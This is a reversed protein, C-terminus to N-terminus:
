MVRSFLLCLQGTSAYLMSSRMINLMTNMMGETHGADCAKKDGL